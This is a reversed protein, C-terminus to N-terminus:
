KHKKGGTAPRFKPLTIQETVDDFTVEVDMDCKIQEPPCDVINSMMQVGEELRIIAATYPVDRVFEVPTYSYVTTYSYVKGRGSARIWELSDSLCSPCFLKPYMIKTGCGKCRQIWLEHRKCGEWFPKSWPTPTPLPKTYASM